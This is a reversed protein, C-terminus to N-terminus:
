DESAIGILSEYTNNAVGKGGRGEQFGCGTM